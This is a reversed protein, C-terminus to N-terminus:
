LQLGAVLGPWLRVNTAADPDSLLAGEVLGFHDLRGRATSLVNLSPGAFASFRPDLQYGV